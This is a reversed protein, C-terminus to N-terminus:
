RCGSNSFDGATQSAPPVCDLKRTAVIPMCSLQRQVVLAIRDGRAGPGCERGGLDLALPAAVLLANGFGLPAGVAARRFWHPADDGLSLV